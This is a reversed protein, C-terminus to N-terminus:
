TCSLCTDSMIDPQEITQREAVGSSARNQSQSRLYYLSKLGKVWALIHLDSLYQVHSDGPIFLNVSQAQDIFPQRDGALEIIWRMDIEFATKFVDKVSQEMWELGLVSGQDKKILQWQELIWAKDHHFREAYENIYKDLYKNKVPFAGQNVKKTFANTVWPEIGSSTVNCLSSISMTPAVATVHINRKPKLEPNKDMARVSMPCPELTENYASTVDNIYKFIEKNLYKASLSDFPLMKSQFLSHLGMVGLGISREDYAANRAKIFGKKVDPDTIADVRNIFDTLINDLFDMCDRIFQDNGKWEDYYEANISGLCCVGTHNEDTRLTIETCLNSTVVKHGLTQYEIPSNNNVTDIFLLYPEGKLTTRIELAKHWIEKAQVTKVVSNDKPSRLHWPLDFVVATMFEDTITIGHHLDANRRTQDGIPSRIEIFEEIEPHEVSLYDAQSFRRIGGQSIGRSLEGDINMFPIVGSAEGGYEGVEHNIERVKSWDRGVGGGASGLWASEYWANFISKKTDEVDGTFCAIPLGRNTGANSSPPTSPHFWYDHIYTQMRKAHAADNAYHITARELWEAYTEDPLFYTERYLAKSFSPLGEWGRGDM